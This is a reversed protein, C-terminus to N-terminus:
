SLPNIKLSFRTIRAETMKDRYVQKVLTCLFSVNHCSFCYECKWRIRRKRERVGWGVGVVVKNRGGFGRSRVVYCTTCLLVTAARSIILTYRVGRIYGVSFCTKADGM